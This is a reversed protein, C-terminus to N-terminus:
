TSNGESRQPARRRVRNGAWWGAGFVVVFGVLLLGLAAIRIPSDISRRVKLWRSVPKPPTDVEEYHEPTFVRSSVEAVTHVRVDVSDGGVVVELFNDFQSSLLRSARNNRLMTISPETEIAGQFYGVGDRSRTSFKLPGLDGSFVADVRAKALLPHVDRWM